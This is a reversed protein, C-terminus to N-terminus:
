KLKQRAMKAEPSKPFKEILENFFNKAEAKMKLKQFSLGIKLLSQPTRSHTASTEQVKSFHLIAKKYDELCYYGEGTQFYVEAKEASKKPSLQTLVDIAAECNNDALLEMATQLTQPQTTNNASSGSHQRSQPQADKLNKLEELILIQNKELETLRNEIRPLLEPMENLKAQAQTHELEETKGRLQAVETRLIELDNASIKHATNRQPDNANGSSTDTPSEGAARIQSRTKMCGVLTLSTLTITLLIYKKTYKYFM